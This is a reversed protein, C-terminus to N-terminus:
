VNVTAAVLLAPVPAAEAAEFLTVGLDVPPQDLAAWVMVKALGPGCVKPVVGVRLARQVEPSATVNEEDVAATQVTVPPPTNAKTFAPVQVM